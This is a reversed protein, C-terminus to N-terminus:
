EANSLIQHACMYAQQGSKEARTAAGGKIAKKCCCSSQSGCYVQKTGDVRVEKMYHCSCHYHSYILGILKELVIFFNGREIVRFPAHGKVHEDDYVVAQFQLQLQGLHHLM